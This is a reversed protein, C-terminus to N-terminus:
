KSTWSKMLAKLNIPRNFHNYHTGFNDKGWGTATCRQSDFSDSARPLCITNVNPALDFPTKLIVIAFDNHLNNTHFSEHYLVAEVDREQHAIPENKTQTDWEGARVVLNAM